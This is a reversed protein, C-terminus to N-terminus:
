GCDGRRSLWTFRDFKDHDVITGGKKPCRIEGRDLEVHREPPDAFDLVRGDGGSWM